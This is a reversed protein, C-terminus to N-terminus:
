PRPAPVHEIVDTVVDDLSAGELRQSAAMRVRHRLVALACRKVDEPDVFARGQLLARAQACRVLAIAARTGAGQSLQASFRTARAIRVAYGLLQENVRIAARRAKLATVQAPTFCPVPATIALMDPTTSPGIARVLRTEDDQNPFPVAVSLTFRDLLAEGLAAAGYAQLPNRSAILMCPPLEPAQEDAAQLAEALAAQTALCAQELDSVLLVQGPRGMPDVGRAGAQLSTMALGPQCRIQFFPAGFSLALARAILRKGVGPPGELLVHGGALLAILLAEIVAAQGILVTGLETKWHALADAADLQPTESDSLLTM